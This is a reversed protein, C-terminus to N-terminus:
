AGHVREWRELEAKFAVLSNLNDTFLGGYLFCYDGQQEVFIAAHSLVRVEQPELGKFFIRITDM